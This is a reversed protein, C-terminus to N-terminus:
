NFSAVALEEDNFYEFISLIQAIFLLNKIKKSINLLKFQGEHEQIHQLCAMLEGVGSSDMYTVRAMNLLIRKQGIEVLKHIAERLQVDGEGITIQGELDLITIDDVSRHYIKM